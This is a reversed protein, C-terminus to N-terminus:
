LTPACSLNAGRSRVYNHADRGNEMFFCWLFAPAGADHVQAMGSKLDGAHYGKVQGMSRHDHAAPHELSAGTGAALQDAETGRQDPQFCWGLV